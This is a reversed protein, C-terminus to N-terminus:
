RLPCPVNFASAACRRGTSHVHSMLHRPPVDGALPISLRHAKDVIFARQSIDRTTPWSAADPRRRLPSCFRVRYPGSVHRSQVGVQNILAQTNKTRSDRSGTSLPGSGVCLPGSGMRPTRSAGASTRDAYMPTRCRGHPDLGVTSVKPYM